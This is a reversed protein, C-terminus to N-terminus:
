QLSIGGPVVRRWLRRRTVGPVGRGRRAGRDPSEVDCSARNPGEDDMGGTILMESDFWHRYARVGDQSLIPTLEIRPPARAETRHARPQNLWALALGVAVATGGAAFRASRSGTRWSPAITSTRALQPECTVAGCSELALAAAAAADPARVSAVGAGSRGGRRRRRGRGGGVAEVGVMAADRRSPGRGDAAGRPGAARGERYVSRTVPFYGPKTAALYHEGPLM